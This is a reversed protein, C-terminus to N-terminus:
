RIWKLDRAVIVPYLNKEFWEEAVQALRASWQFGYIVKDAGWVMRRYSLHARDAGGDSHRRVPNGPGLLLSAAPQAGSSLLSGDLFRDSNRGPLPALWFTIGTYCPLCLLARYALVRGEWATIQLDPPLLHQGRARLADDLDLGLAGDLALSPHGYGAGSCPCYGPLCITAPEDRFEAPQLSLRALENDSYLNGVV